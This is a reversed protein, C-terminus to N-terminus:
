RRTFRSSAAHSPQARCDVGTEQQSPQGPFELLVEDKVFRQENPPPITIGGRQAVTTGGTRPPLPGSPGAGAPGAGAPGPTAVAVGTVVAPGIIGPGVWPPRKGPRRGPRGDGGPNNVVVEDGKSKGKPFRTGGLTPNIPVSNFRQYRPESRFGSSGMSGGMNGMGGGGARPGVSMSSPRFQAHSATTAAAVVVVALATSISLLGILGPRNNSSRM